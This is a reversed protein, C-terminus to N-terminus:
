GRRQARDRKRCDTEQMHFFWAEPMMLGGKTSYQLFKLTSTLSHEHQLEYKMGDHENKKKRLIQQILTAACKQM